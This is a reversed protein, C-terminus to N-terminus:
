EAQFTERAGDGKTPVWASSNQGLNGFSQTSNPDKEITHERSM